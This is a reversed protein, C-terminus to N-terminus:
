LIKTSGDYPDSRQGPLKKGDLARFGAGLGYFAKVAAIVEEDFYRSYNGLNRKAAEIGDEVSPCTDRNNDYILQGAAVLMQHGKPDNNKAAEVLPIYVEGVTPM